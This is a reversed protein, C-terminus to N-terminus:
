TRKLAVSLWHVMTEISFPKELVALAGNSTAKAQLALTRYGSIFITPPAIGQAILREHMEVGSMGPMRIDSILCATRAAQGSELFAEASEYLCVQWGMSRILSSLALRVAKDDDVISV